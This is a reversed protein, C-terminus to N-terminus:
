DKKLYIHNILDKESQIVIKQTKHETRYPPNAWYEYKDINDDVLEPKIEEMYKQYSIPKAKELIFIYPKINNWVNYNYISINFELLSSYLKKFEKYDDAIIRKKIEAKIEYFEGLKRLTYKWYIPLFFVTIVLLTIVWAFINHSMLDKIDFAFTESRPELILINLPQATIIALLSVLGIRFIMSYNLEIYSGKFSNVRTTKKPLLTPTITYLLLIYLNTVTYGWFIGISIDAVISHFLHETFRIASLFCFLLILFVFFGIRTFSGQIKSNCVRIITYDEGSLKQLNNRIGNLISM